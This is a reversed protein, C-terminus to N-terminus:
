HTQQQKSKNKNKLGNQLLPLLPAGFVFFFKILGFINYAQDESNKWMVWVKTLSLHKRNETPKTKTVNRICGKMM